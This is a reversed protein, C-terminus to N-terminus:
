HLSHLPSSAVSEHPDDNKVRWMRKCKCSFGLLPEDLWYYDTSSFRSARSRLTKCRAQPKKDDEGSIRGGDCFPIDAGRHPEIGDWATALVGGGSSLFPYQVTTQVFAKSKGHLHPITSYRTEFQGLIGYSCAYLVMEMSRSIFVKRHISALRPM